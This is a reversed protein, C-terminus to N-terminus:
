YKMKAVQYSLIHYTFEVIESSGLNVGASLGVSESIATGLFLNEETQEEDEASSSLALRWSLSGMEAM